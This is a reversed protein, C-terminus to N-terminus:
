KNLRRKTIKSIFPLLMVVLTLILLSFAIPQNIFINLSGHSILLSQRLSDEMMPGIVVALILPATSFGLKDLIYGAIGAIMMIWVDTVSHNVAFAGVVCLVLIIPMLLNKPTRLINIFLGVMPLNLVLLMINGIYMSAILGWFIEPHNTVLLPGPTIGHIM